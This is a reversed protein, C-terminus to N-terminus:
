REHRSGADPSRRTDTRLDTAADDALQQDAVWRAVQLRSTFGLKTLIREVHTEATRQSIVLRAAIDKNSL